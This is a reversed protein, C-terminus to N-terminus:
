VHMRLVGAGSSQALIKVRSCLLTLDCGSTAVLYASSISPKM